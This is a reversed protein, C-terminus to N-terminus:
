LKIPRRDQRRRSEQRRRNRLRLSQRWQLLRLRGNVLDGAVGAVAAAARHDPELRVRPLYQTQEQKPSLRQNFKPPLKQLQGRPEHRRLWMPKPRFQLRSTPITM